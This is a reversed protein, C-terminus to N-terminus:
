KENIENREDRMEQAIVNRICTGNDLAIRMRRTTVILKNTKSKLFLLSKIMM